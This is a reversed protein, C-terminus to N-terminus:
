TSFIEAPLTVSKIKLLEASKPNYGYVQRM